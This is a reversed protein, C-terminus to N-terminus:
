NGFREEVSDRLEKSWNKINKVKISFVIHYIGIVILGAGVFLILTYGSLFPNWILVVSAFVSLIGLILLWGWGSGPLRKLEVSTGITTFSRFLLWFGFFLTLTFPQLEPRRILFIGIFLDILGSILGWIWGALLSSNAISFGIELIGSVLFGISFLVSLTLFSEVPTNLVYVGLIIYLIGIILPLYWYKAIKSIVNPM